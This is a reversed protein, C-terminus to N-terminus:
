FDDEYTLINQACTQGFKSVKQRSTICCQQRVEPLAAIMSGANAGHVCTSKNTTFVFQRAPQQMNLWVCEHLSDHFTYPILCLLINM